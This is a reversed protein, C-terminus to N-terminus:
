SPWLETSGVQVNPVINVVRISGGVKRLSLGLKFMRLEFTMNKQWHIPKLYVLHMPTPQLARNVGNDHSHNFLIPFAIPIQYCLWARSCTNCRHQVTMHAPAPIPYGKITSLWQQWPHIPSIKNWKICVLICLIFCVAGRDLLRKWQKTMDLLGQLTLAKEMWRHKKDYSTTEQSHLSEKLYYNKKWKHFNGAASM